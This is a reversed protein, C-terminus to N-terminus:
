LPMRGYGLMNCQYVCLGMSTVAATLPVAFALFKNEHRGIRDMACAAPVCLCQCAMGWFVAPGGAAALMKWLWGEMSGFLQWPFGYLAPLAFCVSIIVAHRCWKHHVKKGDVFVLWIGTLLCILMGMGMGPHGSRFFYFRFFEGLRYGDDMVSRASLDMERFVGMSVAQAIRCAGPLFLVGGAAVPLFCWARRWIAGALIAAGAMLLFFFAEAYGIGALALSAVAVAAWKKGTGAVEAMARIYLPLLMWVVAQPIDGLDYCLYIRYPCTMYLLTGFFAPLKTERDAFVRQFLSVSTLLTGAQLLFLSVDYVHIINGWLSFMIGSFLFWLNSDVGDAASPFLYLTGERLGSALGDVRAIWETVMEGSMICNYGVPLLTVIGTLMLLIHYWKKKM